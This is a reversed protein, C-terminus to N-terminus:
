TARDHAFRASKVGPRGDLADIELGSDDALTLMMTARAAARAKKVANEAFTLGDEVVKPPDLVIQSLARVSLPLGEVLAELELLKGRNTTAVVLTDRYESTM